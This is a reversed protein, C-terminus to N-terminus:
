CTVYLHSGRSIPSLPGQKNQMSGGGGIGVTDMISFLPNHDQMHGQQTIIGSSCDKIEPHVSGGLAGMQECCWGSLQQLQLGRDEIKGAAMVPFYM